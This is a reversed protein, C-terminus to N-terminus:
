ISLGLTIKVQPWVMLLHDLVRKLLAATQRGRIRRGPRLITTILKGTEGEYLHVPLYCYEDHYAHFLSLQQSGHTVDDTDDILQELRGRLQELAYHADQVRAALLLDKIDDVERCAQVLQECVAEVVLGAPPPPPVDDSPGGAADGHWRSMRLGM